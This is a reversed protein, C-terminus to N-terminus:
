SQMESMVAFKSACTRLLSRARSANLAARDDTSATLRSLSLDAEHMAAGLMSLTINVRQVPTVSQYDAPTTPQSSYGKPVGHTVAIPADIACPPTFNSM